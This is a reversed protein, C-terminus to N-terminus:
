SRTLEELYRELDTALEVVEQDIDTRAAGLFDALEANLSARIDEMETVLDTAAPENGESLANLYEEQWTAYREVSSRTLDNLDSTSETVPLDSVASSDDVLSSALSVSLANITQNDATVPLPGTDLLTPITTRYVYAYGLQHAVDSAR